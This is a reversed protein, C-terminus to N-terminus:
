THSRPDFSTDAFDGHLAESASRSSQGAPAAARVRGYMYRRAIVYLMDSLTRNDANALVALDGFERETLNVPVRCIRKPSDSPTM